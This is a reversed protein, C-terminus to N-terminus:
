PLTKVGETKEKKPEAGKNKKIFEARIKDLLDPTILLDLAKEGEEEVREIMEQTPSIFASEAAEKVRTKISIKKM